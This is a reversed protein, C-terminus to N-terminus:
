KQGMLRELMSGGPAAGSQQPAAAAKDGSVAGFLDISDIRTTEEVEQNDKVLIHLSRVNQFRVFRLEIKDGKVQDATLEIEQAPTLSDAEDFGINPQNIFLKITKPAQSPSIGSFISIHKLKIPDQFPISILLEPDVDSELFSTGRPGRDPGLISSLPHTKSENLCNLGKSIVHRLLSETVEGTAKSSSSGTPPPVGAHRAIIQQLQPPSAGRLQEVERGAKLFKFTPMATIRFRSALDRQQDVDIKVFKVHQYVGSLQELVPAIAHCPGCWAAHFDVVLLQTPPLSSVISDFQQTSQIEQVPM